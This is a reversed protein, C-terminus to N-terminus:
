RSRTRPSVTRSTLVDNATAELSSILSYGRAAAPELGAAGGSRIPRTCGYLFRRVGHIEEGSEGDLGKFGARSSSDQGGYLLSPLM